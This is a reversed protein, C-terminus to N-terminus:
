MDVNHNLTYLFYKKTDLSAAKAIIEINKQFTVHNSYVNSKHFHTRFCTSILLVDTNIDVLKM